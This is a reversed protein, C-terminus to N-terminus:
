KAADNERFIGRVSIPDDRVRVTGKEKVNGELAEREKSPLDNSSSESVPREKPEVM